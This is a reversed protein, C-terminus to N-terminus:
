ETEKKILQPILARNISPLKFHSIISVIAFVIAGITCIMMDGLTDILGLDLYGSFAYTKGNGYHVVTQTINDLHVASNHTGALLYSNIQTVFADEMMDFGLITNVGYEFIEWLTAIALSFFVGFLLCGFFRKHTNKNGFFVNALTVGLCAFIVGSLCHQILDLFPMITYFNFCSGLISTYALFYIASIFISGARFKLLYEVIFVALVFLMFGLSMFLNRLDFDIVWYVASGFLLALYIATIILFSKGKIREIFYERFSQKLM